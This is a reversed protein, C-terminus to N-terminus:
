TAAPRTYGVIDGPGTGPLAGRSGFPYLGVPVGIGYAQIMRGPGTVLGVHGPRDWTGDVGPFFVLDGPQPSSVRSGAAWQEQSTRPLTIGATRYAMMVLGSCDFGGPGTGGWLYPRGEQQRAYGIAATIVASGYRRSTRTDLVTGPKRRPAAPSTERGYLSAAGLFVATGIFTRRNM